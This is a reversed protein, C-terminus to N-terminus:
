HAGSARQGSTFSSPHLATWGGCYVSSIFFSHLLVERVGYVEMTHVPIIECKDEGTESM